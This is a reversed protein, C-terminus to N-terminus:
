PPWEASALHFVDYVMARNQRHEVLANIKISLADNTTGNPRDIPYDQENLRKLKFVCAVNLNVTILKTGGGHGWFADANNNNHTPHAAYHIDLASRMANGLDSYSIFGNLAQGDRHTKIVTNPQYWEKGDADGGYKDQWSLRVEPNNNHLMKKPDLNRGAERDDLRHSPNYGLNPNNAGPARKTRHIVRNQMKDVINTEFHSRYGAEGQAALTAKKSPFIIHKFFFRNVPWNPGNLQPNANNVLHNLVNATSFGVEHSTYIRVPINLPHAPQFDWYQRWRVHHQANRNVPSM